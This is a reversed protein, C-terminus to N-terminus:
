SRRKALAEAKRRNERRKEEANELELHKIWEDIIYAPFEEIQHPLWKYKTCKSLAWLM